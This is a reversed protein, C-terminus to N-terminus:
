KIREFTGGCGKHTFNQPENIFKCMRQRGELIGCKKCRCVYRMSNVCKERDVGLKEMSKTANQTDYGYKLLRDGYSNFKIGHNWCGECTHIVEHLIISMIGKEATINEDTVVERLEISFNGTEADKICRGWAKSLRKNVSIDTIKRYPIGETDCVVLAKLLLSKIDYM